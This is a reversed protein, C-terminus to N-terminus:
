IQALESAPHNPPETCAQRQPRLRPNSDRGSLRPIKRTHSFETLSLEIPPSNLITSGRARKCMLLVRANIIIGFYDRREYHLAFNFDCWTPPGHGAHNSVM